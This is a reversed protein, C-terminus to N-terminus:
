SNWSKAFMRREIGRENIRDLINKCRRQRIILAFMALTRAAIIDHM